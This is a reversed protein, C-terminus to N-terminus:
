GQIIPYMLKFIFDIIILNNRKFEKIIQDIWDKKDLFSQLNM